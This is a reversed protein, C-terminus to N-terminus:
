WSDFYGLGSWFNNTLSAC